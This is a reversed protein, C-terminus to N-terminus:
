LREIVQYGKTPKNKKYTAHLTGSTLNHERAFKDLNTVTEKHGDPFRVIYRKEQRKIIEDAQKKKIEKLFCGSIFREKEIEKEWDEKYFAKYGSNCYYLDKVTRQVAKYDVGLGICYQRLDKVFNVTHNNFDVVYYEKATNGINKGKRSCELTYNDNLLQLGQQSLQITTDREFNLAQARDQSQYIVEFDNKSLVIGNDSLFNGFKSKRKRANENHQETRRQINNTCGIYTHNNLQIKYVYYM